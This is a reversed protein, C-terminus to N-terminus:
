GRPVEPADAVMAKVQSYAANEDSQLLDVMDPQLNRVVQWLATLYDSSDNFYIAAVAAELALMWGAPEADPARGELENDICTLCVYGGM